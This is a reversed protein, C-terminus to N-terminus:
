KSTIELSSFFDNVEKSSIDQKMMQNDEEPTEPQELPIWGLVECGYDELSNRSPVQDCSHVGLWSFGIKQALEWINGAPLSRYAWITRGEPAEEKPRLTIM